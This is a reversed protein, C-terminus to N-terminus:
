QGWLGSAFVVYSGIGVFISVIVAAAAIKAFLGGRDVDDSLHVDHDM